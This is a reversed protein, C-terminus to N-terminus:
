KKSPAPTLFAPITDIEYTASIGEFEGTVPNQLGDAFRKYAYYLAPTQYGFLGESYGSSVVAHKWPIYGGLWGKVSGDPQPEFRMRANFMQMLAGQGPNLQFHPIVDTTVVGNEMKGRVRLNYYAFNPDDAPRFSYGPIFTKGASDRVPKDKSFILAVNVSKDRGTPDIGSIEVLTTVNGDARRANPTQNSYGRKGRLGPVCGTIRILQNDIGKRGDPSIFNGHKRIGKPPEGTGDDGDLDIGNAVTIQPEYNGPDPIVGPFSTVNLGGPGRKETDGGATLGKDGVKAKLKAIEDPSLYRFVDADTPKHNMKPCQEDTTDTAPAIWTILYSRVERGKAPVAPKVNPLDKPGFTIKNAMPKTADYNLWEISKFKLTIAQDVAGDLVPCDAVEVNLLRYEWWAPLSAPRPGLELIPRARDSSEAYTLAPIVAKQACLAMLKPLDPNTKSMAITLRGPNGPKPANPGGFWMKDGALIDSSGSNMRPLRGVWDSAEARIWGKHENGPWNGPTEPISLFSDGVYAQAPTAAGVALGATLLASVLKTRYVRPNPKVEVEITM